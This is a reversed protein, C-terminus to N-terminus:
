WIAVPNGPSGTGGVIKLPSWVYLFESVGEKLLPEFDLNEINWIGHRTQMHTHCPVAEGEIEGVPQADNASTDGGMLSIKRSAMYECASRGFGPEGATFKASAEAKQEATKAKWTSNKWLDGHGTYLFVCDGAEPEAVNQAKLMAQVDAGTVIGPSDTATPIPLPNVGRLKTADLLIARCVFAKEAVNEVGLDGMGIPRNGAGRQYTANRERGNYFYDGKSTRVGIHGPGDFQTGIQGIETTVHEDHFVMGNSGFPGGSPTGPIVMNWVREGFAPIDKDYYKGLTATKGQRVLRMSKMVYEPTIRNIAGAKDDPGFESPWWNETFPKDNPPPAAQQQAGATGALVATLLCTAGTLAVLNRRGM